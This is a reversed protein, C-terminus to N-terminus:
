PLSNAGNKKQWQLCNAFMKELGTATLVVLVVYLKPQESHLVTVAAKCTLWTKCFLVSYFLAAVLTSHLRFSRGIAAPM